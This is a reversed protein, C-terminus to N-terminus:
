CVAEAAGAVRYLRADLGTAAMLQVGVPLATDPCDGAPLSLAPIGTLNALVTWCDTRPASLPDDLGLGLRPATVPM